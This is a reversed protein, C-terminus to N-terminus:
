GGDGADERERREMEAMLRAVDVAGAAKYRGLKAASLPDLGLRGRLTNARAEARHLLLHASRVRRKGLDGVGNSAEEGVKMLYETLLQCQAEARAWAWVAPRYRSAHLYAVTSDDLLADVLERALPDVKRPSYFGHRVTLEHNPPFPPRQGPFAPVWGDPIPLGSGTVV